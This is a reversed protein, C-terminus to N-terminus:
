SFTFTPVETTTRSSYVYASASCFFSRKAVPRKWKNFLIETSERCLKCRYSNIIKLSYPADLAVFDACAFLNKRLAGKSRTHAGSCVCAM